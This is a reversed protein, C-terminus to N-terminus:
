GGFGPTFCFVRADGPHNPTPACMHALGNGPAGPGSDGARGDYAYAPIRLWKGDERRRGYWAGNEFKAQTAYCDVNSCCSQGSLNRWQTYDVGDATHSFASAVAIFVWLVALLGIAVYERRMM